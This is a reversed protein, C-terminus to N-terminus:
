WLQAAAHEVAAEVAHRAAAHGDRLGDRTAPVEVVRVGEFPANLVRCLQSLETIKQHGVGLGACVRDLAVRHPTGFVREFSDAYEPAGQELLSFIGGGSDNLVVLTLDPRPEDPGLVLGTLDHLMTLDGLLAFAPGPHALGAGAATSITGDIGAVGRNALVTLGARPRAALSVDRVPNSSGLVLLAGAPLASVLEAALRQGLPTSAQALVRDLAGSAAGDALQWRQCWDPPPRLQPAVGVARVTNPLGAGAPDLTGAVGYVAVQEDALLRSVSRHLTPRGHLLVQTPRLAPAMPSGLLWPGTRLATPWLPSSPEAVIPADGTPAGHGAPGAVSGGIVLTPASPDLDLTATHNDPAALYETWPAGAPRGALPEPWEGAGPGVRPVLPEAFPVNLHVPGPRGGTRGLAVGVAKAVCARWGAQQGEVRQAVGLNIELRPAGAFLGTQVVTQNAGTGVLAPPRDATLALLAVGGYSAELVAPHLNAAATGSTCVVPVVRGSRLALGLALFAGTREDIRVHLRVRGVADARHLAFSMPANRSGPCLVVDTVGCRILEDVLVEAQATSPHM